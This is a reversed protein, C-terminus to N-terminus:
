LAQQGQGILSSPNAEAVDSAFPDEPNAYYNAMGPGVGTGGSPDTPGPNLGALGGPDNLGINDFGPLNGGFPDGSGYTSTGPGGFGNGPQMNLDPLGNGFLKKLLDVIPIGTGGTGSGSGGGLSFGGKGGSFLKMLLAGIGGGAGLLALTKGIDSGGSNSPPPTTYNAQPIAGINPRNFASNPLMNVAQQSVATRVPELQRQRTISSNLLEQLGPLQMLSQLSSNFDAM